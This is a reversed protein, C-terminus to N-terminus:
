GVRAIPRKAALETETLGTREEGETRGLVLREFGLVLKTLGLLLGVVLYAMLKLPFLYARFIWEIAGEWWCAPDGGFAEYDLVQAGSPEAIM